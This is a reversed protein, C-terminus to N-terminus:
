DEGFRRAFEFETLTQRFYARNLDNLRKARETVPTRHEDVLAAMEDKPAETASPRKVNPDYFRTM